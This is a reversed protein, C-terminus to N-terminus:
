YFADKIHEIKIHPNLQVAIVDFRIDKEWNIQNIYNEAASIVIKSKKVTVAEEPLGFKSSRRTKVEIFILQNGDSAIIDIEARKFRYNRELVKYGEKLLYDVAINEGKIGTSIHNELLSM